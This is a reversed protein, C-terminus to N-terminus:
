RRAVVQRLYKQDIWVKYRQVQQQLLARENGSM